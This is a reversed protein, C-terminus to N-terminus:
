HTVIRAGAAGAAEATRLAASADAPSAFPGVRVRFLTESGAAVSSIDVAALGSLNSGLRQANRSDRFTGAEVFTRSGAIPAIAGDALMAPQTSASPGDGNGAYSNANSLAASALEAPRSRPVPAADKPPAPQFPVIESAAPAPARAAPAQPAQQSAPTWGPVPAASALVTGSGSSGVRVPQKDQTLSALLMRDDSGGLSAVRDYDVRVRAMGRHRFGLVEATRQSVDIVRNAHFPGRDNVRVTVARGNDLNTVRVYSPLPLTPHAATLAAKDYVEGNATRRGHFDSGYWSALGTGSYNPDEKPHYWRGGIKYPQGVHYRGGGKPVDGNQVVRPSASVGLKRDKSSKAVRDAFSCNAALACVAILAAIRGALRLPNRRGAMIKREALAM